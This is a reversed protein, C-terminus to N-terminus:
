AQAQAPKSADGAVGIVHDGRLNAVAKELQDPDRGNLAVKCGETRFAEAIARGIGRSSGTVLVAKNALKLEM